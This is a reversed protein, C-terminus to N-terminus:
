VGERLNNVTEDKLSIDKYYRKGGQGTPAQAVFGVMISETNPLCFFRVMDFKVGDLSYHFAFGNSSKAIQLWVESVTVNNGNADDSSGKTVVSVVATTGFDTKEFCLKAWTKEDQMVMLTASDYVDKFELSVKARLVFDGKVNIYFFPANCLTTPANEDQFDEGCFFDSFSPATIILSDDQVEYDTENLWEFKSFDMIMEEWNNIDTDTIVLKKTDGNYWFASANTFYIYYYWYTKRVM